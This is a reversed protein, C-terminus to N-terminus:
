IPLRTGVGIFNFLDAVVNTEISLVTQKMAAKNVFCYKIIHKPNIKIAIVICDKLVEYLDLTCVANFLLELIIPKKRAGKASKGTTNTILMIRINPDM